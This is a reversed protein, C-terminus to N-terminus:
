GEFAGIDPCADVLAEIQQATLHTEDEGITVDASGDANLVVSAERGGASVEILGTLNGEVYVLPEPTLVRAKGLECDPYHSSEMGYVGDMFLTTDNSVLQFPEDASGFFAKFGDRETDGGAEFVYVYELNYDIRDDYFGESYETHNVGKAEFRAREEYDPTTYTWREVYPNDSTGERDYSINENDAAYGYESRGDRSSTYTVGEGSESDECNDAIYTEGNFNSDTFPSSVNKDQFAVHEESGGATCTPLVVGAPRVYGRKASVRQASSTWRNTNAQSSQSASASRAVSAVGGTVVTLIPVLAQATNEPTSLNVSETGGGGGGGCATLMLSVALTPIFARKNKSM